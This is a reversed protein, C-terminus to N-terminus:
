GNGYRMLFNIVFDKKQNYNLYCFFSSVFLQQQYDTFNKKIKMILRNHYQNDLRTIPNENILKVIDLEEIKEM